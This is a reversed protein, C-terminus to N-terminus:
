KDDIKAQSLLFIDSERPVLDTSSSLKNMTSTINLHGIIVNKPYNLLKKCFGNLTTHWRYQWYLNKRNSIKGRLM